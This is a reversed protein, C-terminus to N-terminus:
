KLISVVTATLSMPLMLVIRLTIVNRPRVSVGSDMEVCYKRAKVNQDKTTAILRMLPTEVTMVVM